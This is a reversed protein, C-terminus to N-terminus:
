QKQADVLNQFLSLVTMPGVGGPVPTIAFVFGNVSDFDVDGCLGDQIKHIGVDIVVQEQTVHSKNIFRPVGCSVILVDATKTIKELDKTKSHCVTVTADKELCLRAVPKGVLNSRGVVVVHKSKLNIDYYDLLSIIGRATAPIIATSDGSSMKGIQIVGLGDIDKNSDISNIIRSSNLTKPIPLQLIIGCVKQNDNLKKIFSILDDETVNDPFIQHEVEIGLSQGFNKKQKIYINSEEKQGVQLIVLRPIVKLSNIKKILKEKLADRVIIGSLIKM